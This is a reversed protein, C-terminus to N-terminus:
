PAPMSSCKCASRGTWTPSQVELSGILAIPPTCPAGVVSVLQRWAGLYRYQADRLSSRVASLQIEAQLVDPRAGQKAQLLQEATKVGEQALKELEQAVHLAQQAGLVEYFRIRVDNLVRARQAELQWNSFEVEM